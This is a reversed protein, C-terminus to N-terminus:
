CRVQQRKLAKAATSECHTFKSNLKPTIIFEDKSFDYYENSQHTFVFYKKETQPRQKKTHLNRVPSSIQTSALICRRAKQKKIVVHFYPSM